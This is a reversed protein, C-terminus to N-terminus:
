RHLILCLPLRFRETRSAVLRPFVGLFVSIVFVRGGSGIYFERARLGYFLLETICRRQTIRELLIYYHVTNITIRELLIFYYM